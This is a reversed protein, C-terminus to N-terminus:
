IGNRLVTPIDIQGYVIFTLVGVSHTEIFHGM